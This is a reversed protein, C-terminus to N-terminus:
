RDDFSSQFLREGAIQLPGSVCSVQTDLACVSRAHEETVLPDLTDQGAPAAAEQEFRRAFHTRIVVHVPAPFDYRCRARALQGVESPISREHRLLIGTRRSTPLSRRVEGVPKFLRRGYAM